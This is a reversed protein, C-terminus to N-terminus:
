VFCYFFFFLLLRYLVSVSLFNILRLIIPFFPPPGLSLSLSLSLLFFIRCQSLEDNFYLFLFFYTFFVYGRCNTARTVHDLKTCTSVFRTLSPLALTELSTVQAANRKTRGISSSAFNFISWVIKLSGSWTLFCLLRILFTAHAVFFIHYLCKAFREIPISACILFLFTRM